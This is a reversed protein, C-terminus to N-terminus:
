VGNVTQIVQLASPAAVSIPKCRWSHQEVAGLRPTYARTDVRMQQSLGGESHIRRLSEGVTDESHIPLSGPMFMFVSAAPMDTLMAVIEMGTGDENGPRGDGGLM